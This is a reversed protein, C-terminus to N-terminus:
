QRIHRRDCRRVNVDARRPRCRRGVDDKIKKDRLYGCGGDVPNDTATNNGVGVVSIHRQIRQTNEEVVPVGVHVHVCGRVWGTLNAILNVRLLLGSSTLDSSSYTAM